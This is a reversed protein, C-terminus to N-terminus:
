SAGRSPVLSNNGVNRTQSRALPALIRELNRNWVYSVALPALLRELIRNWVYSVAKGSTHYPKELRM